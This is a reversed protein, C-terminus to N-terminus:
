TSIRGITECEELLVARIGGLTIDPSGFVVELILAGHAETVHSRRGGGM